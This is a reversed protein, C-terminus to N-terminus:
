PRRGIVKYEIGYRKAMIKGAKLYADHYDRESYRSVKSLIKSVENTFEKEFAPVEKKMIRTWMGKKKTMIYIKERTTAGAEMESQINLFGSMDVNSLPCQWSPHTHLSSFEGRPLPLDVGHVTGKFDRRTGDVTYLRLHEVNDKKTMSYLSDAEARWEGDSMHGIEQPPLPAIKAPEGMLAHRIPRMQLPGPMFYTLVNDPLLAYNKLKSGSPLTTNFQKLDNMRLFHMNRQKEYFSDPKNKDALISNRKWVPKLDCHCNGHYSPGDAHSVTQGHMMACNGCTRADMVSVSIYHDVLNTKELSRYYAERRAEKMSNRAILRSYNRTTTHYKRTVVHNVWKYNGDADITFKRVTKGVNNITVGDPGFYRNIYPVLQKAVQDPHMGGRIGQDNLVKLMKVTTAQHKALSIVAPDIGRKKLADDLWPTWGHMDLSDLLRNDSLLEDYQKLLEKELIINFKGIAGISSRGIRILDSDAISSLNFGVGARPNVAAAELIKVGKIEKRADRRGAHFSKSIYFSIIRSQRATLARIAEKILARTNSTSQQRRLKVIITKKARSYELQLKRQYQTIDNM